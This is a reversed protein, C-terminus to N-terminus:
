GVASFPQPGIMLDNDVQRVDPIESAQISAEQVESMSGVVGSLRVVGGNSAVGIFRARSSLVPDTEIAIRVKEEIVADEVDPYHYTTTTRKEVIGGPVSTITTTTESPQSPLILQSTATTYRTTTTETRAAPGCGFVSVAFVAIGILALRDLYRMFHM